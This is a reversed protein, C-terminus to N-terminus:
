EEGYDVGGDVFYEEFDINPFDDPDFNLDEFSGYIQDPAEPTEPEVEEYRTGGHAISRIYTAEDVFEGTEKDRYYPM